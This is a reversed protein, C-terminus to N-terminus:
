AWLNTLLSLIFCPLGNLWVDNPFTFLLPKYTIIWKGIIHPRKSYFRLVFIHLSLGLASLIIGLPPSIVFSILFQFRAPLINPSSMPGRLSPIITVTLIGQTWLNALFHLVLCPLNRLGVDSPSPSLYHNMLLSRGELLILVKLPYFRLVFRHPILSLASLIM